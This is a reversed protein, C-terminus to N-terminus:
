IKAKFVRGCKNCRFKQKGKPKVSFPSLPHLPNLNLSVKTNSGVLSVDKSRCFFRPCKIKAM